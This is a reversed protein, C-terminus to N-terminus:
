GQREGARATRTTVIAVGALAVVGGLIMAPTLPNGFAISAAAVAIVPSALTLPIVDAIPHRQLLWAMGGAGILTSCLASFVIALLATPPIAAVGRMADPELVLAAPGLLIVGGLGVWAYMNPVSVGVLRRQILSGVAWLFSACATLLLGPIERAVGPDFVLMACGSVALAVGAVRIIGVREKLFAVALLLSFPAGLLNAIALAAVNSTIAVSINTIAFFLGGIVASLLALERMRGPVVAMWPLCAVLVIAQRLFAATFPPVENVSVKIAVINLGWVLNMAIAVAWDRAEFRTAM